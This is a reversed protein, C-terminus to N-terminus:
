PARASAQWLLRALEPKPVDHGQATDNVWVQGYQRHSLGTQEHWAMAPIITLVTWMHEIAASSAGVRCTQTSSALGAAGNHERSPHWLEPDLRVAKAAPRGHRHHLGDVEPNVIIPAVSTKAAPRCDSRRELHAARASRNLRATPIRLFCEHGWLERERFSGLPILRLKAVPAPRNTTSPQGARRQEHLSELEVV